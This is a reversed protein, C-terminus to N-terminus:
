DRNSQGRKEEQIEEKLRAAQQRREDAALVLGHFEYKEADELCEQRLAELYAARSVYGMYSTM